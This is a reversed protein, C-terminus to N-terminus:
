SPKKALVKSETGARLRRLNAGHRWLILLGMVSVALVTPASANLYLAVPAGAVAAVVSAL